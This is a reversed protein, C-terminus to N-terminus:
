HSVRVSRFASVGWAPTIRTASAVSMFSFLSVAYRSQVREDEAGASDEDDM